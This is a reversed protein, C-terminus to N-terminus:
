CYVGSILSRDSAYTSSAERRGPDFPPQRNDIWAPMGASFRKTEQVFFDANLLSPMSPLVKGATCVLKVGANITM